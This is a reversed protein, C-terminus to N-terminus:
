HKRYIFKGKIHEHVFKGVSKASHILTHLDPPVREYSYHEGSKFRIHLRRQEPEYDVADITSSRVKTMTPLLRRDTM